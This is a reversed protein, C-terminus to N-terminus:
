SPQMPQSLCQLNGRRLFQFCFPRSRLRRDGVGDFFVKRVGRVAKVADDYRSEQVAIVASPYEPFESGCSTPLETDAPLGGPPIPQFHEEQRSQCFYVFCTPKTDM